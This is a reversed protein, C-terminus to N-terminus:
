SRYVQTMGSGSNVDYLKLLAEISSLGFIVRVRKLYEGRTQGLDIQGQNAADSWELVDAKILRSKNDIANTEIKDTATKLKTLLEELMSVRVPPLAAIMPRLTEITYLKFPNVSVHGPFMTHSLLEMPENLADLCEYEQRETLM